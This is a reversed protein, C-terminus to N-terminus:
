MKTVVETVPASIKMDAFSDARPPGLNVFFVPNGKGNASWAFRYGSMVTLSSGLVLLGTCEELKDACWDYVDRPINDGFFVVDTKLIGGCKQCTPLVFSLRIPPPGTFADEKKWVGAQGARGSNRRPVEHAGDALEVDGDPAIEGAINVKMWEANLEEMIPQLSERSTIDGCKICKVRRGCGHLESVMESGARGAM